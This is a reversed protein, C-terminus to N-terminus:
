DIKYSDGLHRKLYKDLSSQKKGAAEKIKKAEDDLCHRCARKLDDEENEAFWKNFQEDLDMDQKFHFKSLQLTLQSISRTKVSNKAEDTLNIEPHENNYKVIEEDAIELARKEVIKIIENMEM